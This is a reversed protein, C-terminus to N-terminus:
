FYVGAKPRSQLFPRPIFIDAKFMAERHILNFSACRQVAEAIAEEDMYFEDQLPAIFPQLHELRM